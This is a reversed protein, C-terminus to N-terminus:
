PVGWSPIEPRGAARLRANWEELSIHKYPGDGIVWDLPDEGVKYRETFRGLLLELRAVHEPHQPALNTTENPDSRMHFLQTPPFHYLGPHYTKVLKWEEDLVARQASYLGHTMVLHDRLTDEPNTLLPLLSKGHWGDPTTMGALDTITPALDLGYVLADCTAGKATQLGSRAGARVILPVRQSEDYVSVHDGYIGHTGMHEGHDATVIVILDEWIGAQKLQEILLAIHHDCYRISADYGTVFREFDARSAMQEPMLPTRSWPYIGWPTFPGNLDSHQRQLTAEDPFTKAPIGAFHDMYEPPCRYNRHPDWYQVHLFWDEQAHAKIWPLVVANVQDARENGRMGPLQQHLESWGASFWWFRHRDAFTSFSIPRLGGLNLHEALMPRAERAAVGKEFPLYDRIQSGRGVHTVVGNAVGFRGSFTAARSPGCPSDSVYCRDFRVGERALQDICPSTPRPYGYCGLNRASLSDIDIYLIKM